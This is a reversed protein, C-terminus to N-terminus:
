CRAMKNTKHRIRRCKTKEKPETTTAEATTADSSTDTSVNKVPVATEQSLRAVSTTMDDPAPVTLSYQAIRWGADTKILVGSGWGRGLQDHELSEDFWAVGGDASLRIERQHSRYGWGAGRSFQESVFSRLSQGELRSKGDVGLFVADTSLLALFATPDAEAGARQLTDLTDAPAGEAFTHNNCVLLLLLACIASQIKM